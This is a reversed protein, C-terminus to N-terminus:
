IQCTYLSVVGILQKAPLPLEIVKFLMAVDSQAIVVALSKAAVGPSSFLLLFYFKQQIARILVLINDYLWLFGEDFRHPM